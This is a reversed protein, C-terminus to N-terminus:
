PNIKNLLRLLKEKRGQMGYKTGDYEYGANISYDCVTIALEYEGMIEYLQALKKFVIYPM